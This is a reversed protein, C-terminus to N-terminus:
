VMGPRNARGPAVPSSQPAVSRAQKPPTTYNRGGVVGLRSREAPPLGEAWGACVLREPCLSCVALAREVEFPDGTSARDFLAPMGRGTRCAACPMTPVDTFSLLLGAITV